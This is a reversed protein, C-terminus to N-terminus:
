RRPKKPRKPKKPRIIWDWFGQLKNGAIEKIKM